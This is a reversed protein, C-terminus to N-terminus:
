RKHLDQQVCGVAGRDLVPEDIEHARRRRADLQLERLGHVDDGSSIEGLRPRSKHRGEHLLKLTAVHSHYHAHELGRARDEVYTDHTHTHTHTHKDGGATTQVASREEGRGM